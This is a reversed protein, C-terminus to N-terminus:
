PSRGFGTANGPLLTMSQRVWRRVRRASRLLRPVTRGVLPLGLVLGRLRLAASGHLAALAQRAEDMAAKEAALAARTQASAERAAALHRDKAVLAQRLAEREQGADDIAQRAGAQTAQEAALAARAQALAAQTQRLAKDKAALAEPHVACAQRADDLAQRASVLAEQEVVFAARTQTLCVQMEALAQEKTALAQRLAECEERLPKQSWLQVVPAVARLYVAAARGEAGFDAPPATRHTTIVEEYLTTLRDLVGDLGAGARILRSAAAADIPDYGEIRRRVGDTTVRERLTRVGFNLVRLREIEAATILPGLGANDCLIVATGVALAELAARAKAFVLDYGGLVEEPRPCSKGIGQGIVDLELGTQRCAARVAPLFTDERALNSFILARRPRAPLSGRPQFRSLDVANLLLRVQEPPVGAEHILRDRCVEDVAVYRLIRPFRPPMEEWPIWGHCVFVAPAQPFHLLATMTEIHHHGHIVDPAEGLARLDDVVPVTGQRLEQAVDGLRSSYAVPHHGRALLGLAVDRLYMESGARDALTNNTLLVTLRRM